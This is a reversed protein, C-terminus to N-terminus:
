NETCIELGIGHSFRAFVRAGKLKIIYFNGKKLGRKLRFTRYCRSAVPSPVILFGEWITQEPKLDFKM